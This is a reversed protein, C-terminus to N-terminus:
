AQRSASAIVQDQGHSTDLWGASSTQYGGPGADLASLYANAQDRIAGVTTLQFNGAGLDPSSDYLAEWIAVQLAAAQIDTGSLRIGEAFTNFLWAVKDGTDTSNGANM